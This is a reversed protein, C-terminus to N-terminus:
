ASVLAAADMKAWTLSHASTVRNGAADFIHWDRGTMRWSKRIAQGTFANVYESVYREGDVAFSKGSTKIWEADARHAVNQRVTTHQNM